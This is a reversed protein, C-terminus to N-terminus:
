EAVGFWTAYLQDYTGDERLQLLVQNIEELLPSDNPLAIGYDEAQFLSGVVHLDNGANQSTYYLLVPSDYVIADVLDNQLAVYAADIDDYGNYRLGRSQLYNESTTGAVTAVQKGILDDPGNIAGRIEQATLSAAVSATFYSVLFLSLFMWILATMRGAVGRPVKDGYGVTTVTVTAWWFADWIGHLYDSHFEPNPHREVLWIVHAMLVLILIGAGLVALLSPSFIGTIASLISRGGGRTVMIQLGSAFMPQSFDIRQERVSTVSIGAIGVDVDGAEVADLIAPTSDFFVWQFRRDLRQGIEKWLDISFGSYSGAESEIVFPALEKIAVKIEDEQIEDEQASVHPAFLLAFIVTLLPFIWWWWWRRGAMHRHM